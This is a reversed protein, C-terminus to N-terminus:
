YWPRLHLLIYMFELLHANFYINPFFSQFELFKFHPKLSIDSSKEYFMHLSIFRLLTVLVQKIKNSISIRIAYADVKSERLKVVYSLTM